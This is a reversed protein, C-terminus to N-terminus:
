VDTWFNNGQVTVYTLSVSSYAAVTKDVGGTLLLRNGTTSSSSNVKLTLVYNTDNVLKISRGLLGGTLGTISYIATPGTVTVVGTKAPLTVNDNQGNSLTLSTQKVQTGAEFDFVSGSKIDLLMTNNGTVYYSAVTMNLVRNNTIQNYDSAAGEYIGYNSGGAIEDFVINSDFVSNTTYEVSIAPAGTTVQRSNMVVNDSFNVKLCVETTPQYFRVGYTASNKVTNGIIACATLGLCNINSDGTSYELTNNAVVSETMPGLQMNVYGGYCYNGVVRVNRLSPTGLYINGLGSGSVTNGEILLDYIDANPGYTTIGKRFANNIKNNTIKISYNPVTSGSASYVMIGHNDTYGTRGCSELWCSDIWATNQEELRIGAQTTNSVFVSRIQNGSGTKCYIGAGAGNTGDTNGLISFNEFRMLSTGNGYFMAQSSTMASTASFKTVGIGDGAVCTNTSVLLPASIKYTGAPAYVMGGSLSVATLAAQIAVTDDTIGNGTAGFDKVSVTQALKAQVTTTVAGAGGENYTVLAADTEQGSTLSQVTTFKVLAGVHLGSDFTVTNASTEVYSYTSGSYQNVGDVFVSLTNAGPVYANALTFVTQGATATQVEELAFFNVFNSNIGVINDYTAILVDNSDKLLFKYSTNDLLWVEGSPVRGGSDLVIPNTHATGGSSSTYTTAPTTTGALYSYLKGGALPVGNSTFFQAAVGGVPSLYVAM